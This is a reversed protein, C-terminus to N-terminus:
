EYAKIKTRLSDKARSLMTRCTGNSIEMIECIEENDMGEILHLTLIQKYNSKLEDMVQLVKKATM